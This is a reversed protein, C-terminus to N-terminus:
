LGLLPPDPSQAAGARRRARICWRRPLPTRLLDYGDEEERLGPGVDVKADLDAGVAAKAGARRRM